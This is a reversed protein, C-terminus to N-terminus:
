ACCNPRCRRRCRPSRMWFFREAMPRRSGDLGNRRDRRHILRKRPRVIREGALNGPHRRLQSQDDSGGGAASWAHIVDAVIEKGVGSEGTILVRSDSPAILGADRFVAQMLPSRAVLVGAIKKGRRFAAARDRFAPRRGSAPSCNTWTLRSPFTISRATACRRWPM